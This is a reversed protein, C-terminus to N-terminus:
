FSTKSSIYHSITANDKEETAKQFWIDVKAACM